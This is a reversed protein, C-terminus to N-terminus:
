LALWDAKHMNSYSELSALGYPQKRFTKFGRQPSCTWACWGSDLWM